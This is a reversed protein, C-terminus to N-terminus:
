KMRDRLRLLKDYETDKLLYELKNGKAFYECEAKDPRNCESCDHTWCFKLNAKHKHQIRTNMTAREVLDEFYVEWSLFKNANNYLDSLESHVIVNNRLYKTRLLLEEFCEYKSMIIVRPKYYQLVRNYFEDMHCGFAAMDMFVVVNTNVDANLVDIVKTVISSKGADAAIVVSPSLLAEFFRKGAKKDEIIVKDYALNDEQIIGYKFFERTKHVYGDDSKYMELISDVAISLEGLEDLSDKYLLEDDGIGVYERTIVLYFNGRDKTEKIVKAFEHTGVIEMDDFIILQKEAGRMIASWNTEDAIMIGLPFNVVTNQSRLRVAEVLSTKGCGSAGRVITIRRKIPIEWSMNGDIIGLTMFNM